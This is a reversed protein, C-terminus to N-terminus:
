RPSEVNAFRTFDKLKIGFSFNLIKDRCQRKEMCFNTM